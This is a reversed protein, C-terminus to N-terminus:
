LLDFDITFILFFVNNWNSSCLFKKNKNKGWLLKERLNYVSSKINNKKYM